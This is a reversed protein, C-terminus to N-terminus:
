KPDKSSDKNYKLKYETTKLKKELERVEDISLVQSGDIKRANMLKVDDTLSEPSIKVVKTTIRPESIIRIKKYDTLKITFAINYPFKRDTLFTCILRYIGPERYRLEYNIIKELKEVQTLKDLVISSDLYGSLESFNQTELSHKLKRIFYMINSNLHTGAIKPIMKFDTGFRLFLIIEQKIHYINENVNDETLDHKKILQDTTFKNIFYDVAILKENDSLFSSPIKSIVFELQPMEILEPYADSQFINQLINQFEKETKNKKMLQYAYNRAVQYIWQEPKQVKDKWLFLKISTLQAIEQALENTHCFYKGISLAKQYYHDYFQEESFNKQGNEGM